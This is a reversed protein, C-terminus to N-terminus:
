VGFELVAVAIFLLLLISLGQPEGNRLAAAVLGGGHSGGGRSSFLLHLSDASVTSSLSMWCCKLSVFFHLLMM